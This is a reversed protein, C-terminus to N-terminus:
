VERDVEDVFRSAPVGLARSLRLLTTLTPQKLGRELFSVFTRHIDAAEALAEQSMGKERRARLLSRGFASAADEQKIPAGTVEGLQPPTRNDAVYQLIRKYGITHPVRGGRGHESRKGREDEYAEGGEGGGLRLKPRM